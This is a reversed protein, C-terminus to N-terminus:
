EVSQEMPEDVVTQQQEVEGGVEEKVEVKVEEGEKKKGKKEQPGDEGKQLAEYYQTFVSYLAVSDMFIQSGDVNYEQANTFMLYFDSAM